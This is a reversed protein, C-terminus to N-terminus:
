ETVELEAFARMTVPAVKRALEAIVQAFVRIEAQSSEHTRLAVFNAVAQLSATWWFSTMINLPLVGRANEPAVGSEVLKYYLEVSKRNQENIEEALLDGEPHAGGSGQKKNEAKERVALPEYLAHDTVYRQSEENWPTDIYAMTGGVNHKYLQRAVFEPANILFQLQVHRTPSWHKHTVLYKILREDSMDMLEKYKRFSVRAANVVTLDNGMYDMLYVEGIRGNCFVPNEIGKVM